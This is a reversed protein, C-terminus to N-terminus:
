LLDLGHKAYSLKILLYNKKHAARGTSNFINEHIIQDMCSGVTRTSAVLWNNETEDWVWEKLM